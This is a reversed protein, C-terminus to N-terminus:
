AQKLLLAIYFTDKLCFKYITFNIKLFLGVIHEKSFIYDLNGTFQRVLGLRRCFVMTLDRYHKWFNDIMGM